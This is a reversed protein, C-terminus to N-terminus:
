ESISISDTLEITIDFDEVAEIPILTIKAALRAKKNTAVRSINYDLIGNGTEMRDLLPTIQSTFNLWLVESNQEFTYKRAANYATKAVESSIIRCNLFSTAKLLGTGDDDAANDRFTRNGWVIHGFPRVYAIPNIAIGVNDGSEDLAVEGTQARAQLMEIDATSYEKDVSILENIIGRFSGAAAYWVPNSQVSTAFACLYGFSAPVHEFVKMSDNGSSDMGILNLSVTPAFAAAFSRPDNTTDLVDFVKGVRTELDLRVNAADTYKSDLLAIADCRKAACEVMDKSPAFFEGTTLFRIDYRAKDALDDWPINPISPEDGSNANPLKFGQFLVQMGRKLLHHALTASLTEYHYGMNVTADDSCCADAFAKASTFLKPEVDEDAKGPIYVVNPIEGLTPTGTNDIERIRIKPM